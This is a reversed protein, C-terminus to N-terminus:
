DTDNQRVGTVCTGLLMLSYPTHNWFVRLVGRSVVFLQYSM